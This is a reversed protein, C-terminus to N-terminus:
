GKVENFGRLAIGVLENAWFRPKDILKGVLAKSPIASPIRNPRGLLTRNEFV